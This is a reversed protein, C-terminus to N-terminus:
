RGGAGHDRPAAGPEGALTPGPRATRGTWRTEGDIIEDTPVMGVRRAVGESATNAPHIDAVVEDVGLGALEQVMLVVARTAYGRGQWAAGIVWAIEARAGDLPRSAQVYGVPAGRGDLVVWNLWQQSGDPSFGTTQRAYRTSLEEETPPEGGIHRYLEPSALVDVMAAADEVRLPRITVAADMDGDSEPGVDDDVPPASRRPSGGTGIARHSEQAQLVGTTGM